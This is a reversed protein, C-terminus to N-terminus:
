LQIERARMAGQGKLEELVSSRQAPDFYFDAAPRCRIEEPSSYGLMRAWANNCDVIYGELTSIVVGALNEEFLRRYRQESDPLALHAKQGETTNLSADFLDRYEPKILERMPIKLLEALAFAIGISYRILAAIVAGVRAVAFRWYSRALLRTSLPRSRRRDAFSMALREFKIRALIRAPTPPGDAACLGRPVSKRM